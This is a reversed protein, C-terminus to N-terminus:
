KGLYLFKESQIKGVTILKFGFIYKQIKKISRHFRRVFLTVTSKCYEHKQAAM